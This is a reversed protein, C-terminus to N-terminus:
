APIQHTTTRKRNKLFKYLWYGTMVGLGNLIVDDIDFIGVRFVAQIMEMAFGILLALVICKRWSMKPIVFPVLLGVPIFLVINGVLNIFGIVLGRKLSLYSWISKFPIFNPDGQQTGGFRFMLGAFRIEPVQKLVVVKVLIAVYILLIVSVVLRKNMINAIAITINRKTM